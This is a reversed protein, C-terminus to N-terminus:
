GLMRRQITLSCVDDNFLWCFFGLKQVKDMTRDELFSFVRRKPFKIQKRGWTFPPLLCRSM